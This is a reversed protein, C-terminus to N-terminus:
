RARFEWIGSRSMSLCEVLRGRRRWNGCHSDALIRTELEVAAASEGSQLVGDRWAIAYERGKYEDREINSM